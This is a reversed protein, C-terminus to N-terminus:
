LWKSNEDKKNGRSSSYRKLVNKKILYIQPQNVM